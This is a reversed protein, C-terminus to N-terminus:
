ERQILRKERGIQKRRETDCILCPDLIVLYGCGTCRYEPCYDPGSLTKNRQHQLKHKGAIIMSITTRAVGTETSIKRHSMGKRRLFKVQQILRETIIM